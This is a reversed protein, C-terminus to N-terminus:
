EIGMSPCAVIRFGTQKVEQGEGAQHSEAYRDSGIGDRVRGDFAVAGITSHRLVQSLLDDGPRRLVLFKRSVIHLRRIALPSVSKWESSEIRRKTKGRPPAARYSTLSM